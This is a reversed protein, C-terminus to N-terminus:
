VGELVRDIFFEYEEYERSGSFRQVEQGDRFFVTNPVGHLGLAQFLETEAAADVYYFQFPKDGYGEEIEELLPHVEQCIPCTAKGFLVLCANKEVKVRQEFTAQTLNEMM